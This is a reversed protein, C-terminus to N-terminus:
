SCLSQVVGFLQVHLRTTVLFVLLWPVHQLWTRRVFPIVFVTPSELGMCTGRSSSFSASLSATFIRGSPPICTLANLCFAPCQASHQPCQALICTLANLWFAPSPMSGSHQANLQNGLLACIAPCQALICTLANLRFAPSPMSGSYQPCQALICTLANLWFVSPMLGPHLHPRQALISSHQIASRQTDITGRL